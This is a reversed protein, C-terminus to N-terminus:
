FAEFRLLRMSPNEQAVTMRYRQELIPYLAKTPNLVLYEQGERMTYTKAHPSQAFVREELIWGVKANTREMFRKMLLQQRELPLISLMSVPTAPTWPTFLQAQGSETPAAIFGAGIFTLPEGDRYGGQYLFPMLSRPSRPYHSKMVRPANRIRAISRVYHALDETNGLVVALVSALLPHVLVMFSLQSPKGLAIGGCALGLFLLPVLNVVNNDHSRSVFYVATAFVCALGAVALDKRLQHHICWAVTAVLVSSVWLLISVAGSARIPLAGFGNAYSTAYETFATFDPLMGLRITFFLGVLSGTSLFCILPPALDRRWQTPNEWLRVLLVSFFIVSCFYSVEFAWLFSVAWTVSLAWWQRRPGLKESVMLALMVYVLLFRYAGVSPFANSGTLSPAWGPLLFVAVLTLILAFSRGTITPLFKCWAFFFLLASILLCVSNALYLAFITDSVPIMSTLWLHLFGYQSPTDWLLTGGARLLDITGLYFSLSYFDASPRFAALTFLLVGVASVAYEWRRHPKTEDSNVLALLVAAILCGIWSGLDGEPQWWRLSQCAILGALSIALCDVLKRRLLILGTALTALPMWLEIRQYVCISVIILLLPSLWSVRSLGPLFRAGVMALLCLVLGLSLYGLKEGSEGADSLLLALVYCCAIVDSFVFGFTQLLTLKAPAAVSKSM